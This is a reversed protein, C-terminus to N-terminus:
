NAAELIRGFDRGGPHQYNGAKAKDYVQDRHAGELGARSVAEVEPAGIQFDPGVDIPTIAAARIMLNM